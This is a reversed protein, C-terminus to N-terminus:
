RRFSANGRRVISLIRCVSWGRNFILTSDLLRCRPVRRVSSTMCGFRSGKELARIGYRSHLGGLFTLDEMTSSTLSQSFTFMYRYESSVKSSLQNTSWRGFFLKSSVNVVQPIFEVPIKFISRLTRQIGVAHRHQGFDFDDGLHKKCFFVEVVHMVDQSGFEEITNEWPFARITTTIRRPTVDISAANIM